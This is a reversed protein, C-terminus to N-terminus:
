LLLRFVSKRVSIVGFRLARGRVGSLSVPRLSASPVVLSGSAM